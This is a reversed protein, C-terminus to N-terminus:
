FNTDGRVFKCRNVLRDNYASENPHGVLFVAQLKEPRLRLYYSPNRLFEECADASSMFYLRDRFVAAHEISGRVIARRGSSVLKVPCFYKWKSIKLKKETLLHTVKEAEESEALEEPIKPREALM